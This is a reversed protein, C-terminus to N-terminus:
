RTLNIYYPVTGQAMQTGAQRVELLDNPWIPTINEFIDMVKYDDGAYHSFGDHAYDQNRGSAVLRVPISEHNIYNRITEFPRYLLFPTISYFYPKKGELALGVCIGMGAQESAGVNFCRDPYDRFHMDFVKYGLDGVVLIIDEDKSMWEYLEAAFEGRQSPHRPLPFQKM